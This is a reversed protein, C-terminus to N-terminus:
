HNSLHSSWWTSDPSSGSLHWLVSDFWMRAIIVNPTVGVSSTHTHLSTKRFELWVTPVSLLWSLFPKSSCVSQSSLSKFRHSANRHWTHRWWVWEPWLKHQTNILVPRVSSRFGSRQQGLSGGARLLSFASLVKILHSESFDWFGSTIEKIVFNDTILEFEKIQKKTTTAKCFTLTIVFVETKSTFINFLWMEGWFSNRQFLDILIDKEILGLSNREQSFRASHQKVRDVQQRELCESTIQTCSRQQREDNIALWGCWLGAWGEM